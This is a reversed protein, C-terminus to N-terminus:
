EVVPARRIAVTPQDAEEERCHEHERQQGFLVSDPQGLCLPLDSPTCSRCRQQNCILVVDPGRLLARQLKSSSHPLHGDITLGGVWGRRERLFAPRDEFCGYSRSRDHRTRAAADWVTAPLCPSSGLCAPPALLLRSAMGLPVAPERAPERAASPVLENQFSETTNDNHTTTDQTKLSTQHSAYRRRPASAESPAHPCVNMMGNAAEHSVSSRAQHAQEADAQPTGARQPNGLNVAHAPPQLAPTAGIPCRM